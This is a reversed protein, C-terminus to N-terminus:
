GGVCVERNRQWKIVEIVLSQIDSPSVGPIRGAQGLTTPLVAALKERGEFSIAGFSRFPLEAPLVFDDMARIRAVGEQERRLYGAYKIEIDAWQSEETEGEWGAIALLESM